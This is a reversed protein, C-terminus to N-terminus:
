SAFCYVNSSPEFAILKDKLYILKGNGGNEKIVISPIGRVITQDNMTYVNICREKGSEDVFYLFWEERNQNDWSWNKLYRTIKFDVQQQFRSLTDDLFEFIDLQIM